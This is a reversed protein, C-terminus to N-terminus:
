SSLRSTADTWHKGRRKTVEQLSQNEQAMGYGVRGDALTWRMMAAYLMTSVYCVWPAGIEAAGYLRWVKGRVDTAEIEMASMVVGSRVTRMKLDTLGHVEGNEMVYGHALAQQRGVPADLNWTNIWHIALERGFHAHMWGMSPIGVEPRPGWSHDMTEVCDIRYDKGRLRLTGSVQGTLDFHGGYGAGLGSGAHQDEVRKAAKPSHAPDHIDFPEMLGKFDVHIETGGSGVYDIRYDRPSFAQVHLGNPTRYNSLKEPAPLHQWNDIYLCESRCDVLAGYIVVDASMVGLGKRSVTYVTGMLREEPITFCFFNTEAWLHDANAPTHFEVDDPKIM